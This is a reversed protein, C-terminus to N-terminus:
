DPQFPVVAPPPAEPLAAVFGRGLAEAVPLLLPAMLSDDTMEEGSPVTQLLFVAVAVVLTGKLAGFVLGGAQNFPGVPVLRRVERDVLRVILALTLAFGLFTLVYAVGASAVPSRLVGRLGPEVEQYTLNALLYGGGVAVIGMLERVLGRFAGRILTFGLVVLIVGDLLNLHPFSM